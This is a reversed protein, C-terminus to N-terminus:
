ICMNTRYFSVGNHIIPGQTTKYLINHQGTRCEGSFLNVRFITQYYHRTCGSMNINYYNARPGRYVYFKQECSQLFIM